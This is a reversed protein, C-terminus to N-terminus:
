QACVENFLPFDGFIHLFFRGKGDETAILIFFLTLRLMALSLELQVLKALKVSQIRSPVTIDYNNILDIPEKNRGKM